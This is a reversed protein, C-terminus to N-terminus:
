TRSFDDIKTELMEACEEYCFAETEKNIARYQEAMKRWEKELGGIFDVVQTRGLVMSEWDPEREM